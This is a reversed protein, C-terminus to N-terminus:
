RSKNRLARPQQREKRAIALDRHVKSATKLHPYYYALLREAMVADQGMVIEEMASDSLGLGLDRLWGKRKRLDQPLQALEEVVAEYDALLRARKAKAVERAPLTAILASTNERARQVGKTVAWARFHRRAFRMAEQAPEVESSAKSALRVLLGRAVAYAFALEEDTSMASSPFLPTDGFIEGLTPGQIEKHRYPRRPM